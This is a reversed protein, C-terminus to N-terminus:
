TIKAVFLGSPPRPATPPATDQPIVAQALNSDVSELGNAVFTVTYCYTTASTTSGTVTSDTFTNLSASSSGVKNAVTPTVTTGCTGVQRYVNYVGTPNAAADPSATWTLAVSHAAQAKMSLVMFTLM